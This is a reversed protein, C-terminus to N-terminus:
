QMCPKLWEHVYKRYVHELAVIYKYWAVISLITVCAPWLLTKNYDSMLGSIPNAGSRISHQSDQSPHQVVSISMNRTDLAKNYTFFTVVSITIVTMQIFMSMNLVKSFMVNIKVSCKVYSVRRWWEPTLPILWTGLCEIDGIIRTM